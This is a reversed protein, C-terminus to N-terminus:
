GSRGADEITVAKADAKPLATTPQSSQSKMEPLGRVKRLKNVFVASNTALLALEIQVLSLKCLETARVEIASGLGHLEKVFEELDDRFAERAVTLVSFVVIIILLLSCGVETYGLSFALRSVPTIQSLSSPTLKGFSFGIFTWLSSNQANSFAIPDFRYLAYYLFGFVVTILVVTYLFSAILYIDYYRRRKVMTVRDAILCVLSHCAYLILPAGSDKEQSGSVPGITQGNVNKIPDWFVFRKEEIATRLKRMLRVLQTFLSEAYAKRLSRWLHVGLLPILMAASLCILWKNSAVLIVVASIAAVSYMIFTNRLRKFGLYLAPMFAILLPWRRWLRKPLYWFVLIVPYFIVFLSTKLFNAWGLLLILAAMGGLWLFLRYSVLWEYTPCFTAFAWLDIDFVFAKSIWYTWFLPALVKRLVISSKNQLNRVRGQEEKKDSKAVPDLTQTTMNRIALRAPHRRSGHRM